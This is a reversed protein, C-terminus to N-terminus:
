GRAVKDEPAVSQSAAAKGRPRAPFARGAMMGLRIM